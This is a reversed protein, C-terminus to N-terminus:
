YIANSINIEGELEIRVSLLWILLKHFIVPIWNGLLPIIKGLLLTLIILPISFSVFVIIKLIFILNDLFSLNDIPSSYTNQKVTM